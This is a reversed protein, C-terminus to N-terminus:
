LREWESNGLVELSIGRDVHTDLIEKDGYDNPSLEGFTPPQRSDLGSLENVGTRALNEGM